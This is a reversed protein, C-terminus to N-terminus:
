PMFKQCLYSNKTLKADFIIVDHFEIRVVMAFGREVFADSLDDVNLLFLAAKLLGQLGNELADVVGCQFGEVIRFLDVSETGLCQVKRFLFWM